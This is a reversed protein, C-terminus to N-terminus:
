YCLMGPSLSSVHLSSHSQTYYSDLETKNKLKPEIPPSEPSNLNRFRLASSTINECFEVSPGFNYSKRNKSEVEGVDARDTLRTCQELPVSDSVM